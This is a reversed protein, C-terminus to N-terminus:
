RLCSGTREGSSPRRLVAPNRPTGPRRPVPPQGPVTRQRLVRPHSRQEPRLPNAGTAESAEGPLKPDAAAASEQAREGVGHRDQLGEAPEAPGEAAGPHLLPGRSRKRADREPYTRGHDHEAALRRQGHRRGNCRGLGHPAFGRQAGRRHGVGHRRPCCRSGRRRPRVTGATALAGEGLLALAGTGAEAATAAEAVGAAAEAASSARSTRRRRASWRRRGSGRGRCCPSWKGEKGTVGLRRRLCASTLREYRRGGGRTPPLTLPRPIKRHSLAWNHFRPVHFTFNPPPFTFGPPAPARTFHSLQSAAPARSIHFRPAAPARSIHFKPPASRAHFTFRSIHFRPPLAPTFHSVQPSAAPPRSIHFRPPRLPRSIHFRPPRLPRSIHLRPPRLPAHFTFDPPRLPAHFTKHKPPGCPGPLPRPRSTHFRPAM